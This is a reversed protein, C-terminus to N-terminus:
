PFMERGDAEYDVGKYAYGNYRLDFYESWTADCKACVCEARMSTDDFEHDIIDIDDAEGCEPCLYPTRKKIKM